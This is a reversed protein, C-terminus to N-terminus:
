WIIYIFEINTLNPKLFHQVKATPVIFALRHYRVHTPKHLIQKPFTRDLINFFCLLRKNLWPFQNDQFLIETGYLSHFTSWKQKVHKTLFATDQCRGLACTSFCSRYRISTHTHKHTHITWLSGDRTDRLLDASILTRASTWIAETISGTSTLWVTILCCDEALPLSSSSIKVLQMYLVMKRYHICSHGDGTPASNLNLFGIWHDKGRPLPWNCAMGIRVTVGEGRREKRKKRCLQGRCIPCPNPWALRHSYIHFCASQSCFLLGTQSM